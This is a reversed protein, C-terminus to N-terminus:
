EDRPGQLDGLIQPMQSEVSVDRVGDVGSGVVLRFTRLVTAGAREVQAGAALAQREPYRFDPTQRGDGCGQPPCPVAYGEQVIGREQGADLM